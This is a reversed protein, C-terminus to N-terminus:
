SVLARGIVSGLQCKTTAVLAIRYCCEEIKSGVRFCFLVFVFSILLLVGTGPISSPYVVGYTVLNKRM